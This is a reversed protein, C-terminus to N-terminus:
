NLIENSKGMEYKCQCLFKLQRNRRKYILFLIEAVVSGLAWFIICNTNVTWEKNISTTYNM